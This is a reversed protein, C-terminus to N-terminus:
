FGPANCDGDLGRIIGDGTLDDGAPFLDTTIQGDINIDCASPLFCNQQADKVGDTIIPCYDTLPWYRDHYLHAVSVDKIVDPPPDLNVFDVGTWFPVPGQWCLSDFVDFKYVGTNVTSPIIIENFRTDVPANVPALVDNNHPLRSEIFPAELDMTASTDFYWEYFTAACSATGDGSPLQPVGPGGDECDLGNSALDFVQDNARAYIQTLEPLCYVPDGCSNTGCPNDPYFEVTRYGNSIRYQGDLFGPAAQDDDVTINLFPGGSGSDYFGSATVPDIAENFTIMVLANRPVLSSQAPYVFTIVPPTTDLFTSVTFFWNYGLPLAISSDSLKLIAPTLIVQYRVNETSLGLHNGSAGGPDFKFTKKDITICDVNELINDIPLTDLADPSVKNDYDVIQVSGTNVQGGATCVTTPDIEEKFTVLIHTNRPVDKQFRIPYHSELIGAGLATGYGYLSGTGGSGSGSTGSLSTQYSGIILAAIAYSSLTVLLGVVGSTLIKKAKEIREAAGKSTMWVFGGYLIVIIFLIGIFGLAIRVINEITTLLGQSSFGAFSTPFDLSVQALAVVPAFVFAMAVIAAIMAGKKRIISHM